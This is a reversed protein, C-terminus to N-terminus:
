WKGCCNKMSLWKLWVTRTNVAIQEEIEAASISPSKNSDPVETKKVLEESKEFTRKMSDAAQERAQQARKKIENIDFM